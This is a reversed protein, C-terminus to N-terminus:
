GKYQIHINVYRIIVAVTFSVMAMAIDTSPVGSYGQVNNQWEKLSWILLVYQLKM